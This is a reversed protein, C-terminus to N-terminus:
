VDHGAERIVDAFPNAETWEDLDWGAEFLQRMLRRADELTVTAREWCLNGVHSERGHCSYHVAGVVLAGSPLAVDSGRESGYLGVHHEGAEFDIFSARGEFSGREDNCCLDIHVSDAVM